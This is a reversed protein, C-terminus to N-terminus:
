YHIDVVSHCIDMNSNDNHIDMITNQTAMVLQRLQINIDVVSCVWLAIISIDM